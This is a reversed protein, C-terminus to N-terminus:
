LVSEILSITKANEISMTRVQNRQDYGWFKVIQDIMKACVKKPGVEIFVHEFEEDGEGGMTNELYKVVCDHWYVRSHLQGALLPVINTSKDYRNGLANLYVDCRLAENLEIQTWYGDYKGRLGRMFHSHYAGGIDLYRHRLKGDYLTEANMMDIARQIDDRQGSFVLQTPTNINGIAVNCDACVRDFHAMMNLVNKDADKPDSVIACMAQGEETQEGHVEAYRHTIWLADEDSKFLGTMISEIDFIYMM